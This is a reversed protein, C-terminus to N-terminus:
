VPVIHLYSIKHQGNAVHHLILRDGFIAMDRIVGFYELSITQLHSGDEPHLVVIKDSSSVLLTKHVSSYVIGCPALSFM